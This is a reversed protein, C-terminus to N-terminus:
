NLNWLDEKKARVILVRVGQKERLNGMVIACKLFM